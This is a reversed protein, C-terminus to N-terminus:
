VQHWYETLVSKQIQIDQSHFSSTNQAISVVYILFLTGIMFDMLRLHLVQSYTEAHNIIGASRRVLRKKTLVSTVLKELWIM